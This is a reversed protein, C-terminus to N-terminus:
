KISESPSSIEKELRKLNFEALSNTSDKKLIEKCQLIAEEKMNAIIYQNVLANRLSSENREIYSSTSHSEVRKALIKGLSDGGMEIVKEYYKIAEKNEQLFSNLVGIRAYARVIDHNTTITLHNRYKLIISDIEYRWEREEDAKMRISSKSPYFIEGNWRYDSGRWFTAMLIIWIAPISLICNSVLFRVKSKWNVLIAISFVITIVILIFEYLIDAIWYGFNINGIILNVSFFILIALLFISYYKNLVFIFPAIRKM